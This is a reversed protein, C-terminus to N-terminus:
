SAKRMIFDLESLSIPLCQLHVQWVDTHRVLWYLVSYDHEFGIYHSFHNPSYVLANWLRPTSSLQCNSPCVSHCTEQRWSEFAHLRRQFLFCTQYIYYMSCSVSRLVTIRSAVTLFSPLNFDKTTMVTVWLWVIVTVLLFLSQVVSVSRSIAIAGAPM